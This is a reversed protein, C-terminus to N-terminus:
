NVEQPEYQAFLPTDQEIIRTHKQSLQWEGVKRPLYIRVLKDQVANNLRTIFKYGPVNKNPDQVQPFSDEKRYSFWRGSFALVTRELILRFFKSVVDVVKRTLPPCMQSAYYKIVAWGPALKKGIKQITKPLCRYFVETIDAAFSINEKGEPDLIDKVRQMFATCNKEVLNFPTNGNQYMEVEKILKSCTEKSCAFGTVARKWFPRAESSDPNRFVGAVAATPQAPSFGPGINFGPAFLDGEPTIIHLWPHPFSKFTEQFGSIVPFEKYLAMTSVIEVVCDQSQGPTGDVRLAAKQAFEVQAPSLHAIPKLTKWGEDDWTTLGVQPLYCKKDKENEKNVLSVIPRSLYVIEKIAVNEIVEAVSQYKGEVLMRFEHTAADYQFSDGYQKVIHHLHAKFIFPPVTPNFFFAEEAFGEKKWKDFLERNLKTKLYTYLHTKIHDLQDPHTRLLAALRVRELLARDEESFAIRKGALAKGIEGIKAVTPGDGPCLALYAAMSRVNKGLRKGIEQQQVRNHFSGIYTPTTPLSHLDPIESELEALRKAKFNSEIQPIAM